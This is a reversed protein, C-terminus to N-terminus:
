GITGCNSIMKKYQPIRLVLRNLNLKITLNLIKRIELVPKLIFIIIGTKSPLEFYPITTATLKLEGRAEKSSLAEVILTPVLSLTVDSVQLTYSTGLVYLQGM